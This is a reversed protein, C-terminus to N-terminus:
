ITFQLYKISRGEKLHKEEFTTQIENIDPHLKLGELYIDEVKKVLSFGSDKVVEITYEFLEKSDTKLHVIGNKKLLVKYIDLFRPSTLRKKEQRERPFPDPFTIWIENVSKKPIYEKVNGIQIRLFYANPIKNELADKAGKWIREGQVDIGLFLTDPYKKALNVTYEGKGCGLELIVDDYEKFLSKLKKKVEPTNWELVNTFSKIEEFKRRKSRPM